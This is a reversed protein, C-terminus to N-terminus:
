ILWDILRDISLDIFWDFFPKGRPGHRQLQFHLLLFLGLLRRVFPAGDAAFHFGEFEALAGARYVGRM